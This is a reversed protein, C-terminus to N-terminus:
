SASSGTSTRPRAAPTPEVFRTQPCALVLAAHADLLAEFTPFRDTDGFWWDRHLALEEVRENHVDLPTFFAVPDAAHILVPLGLDGAHRIVEVVRPDDPSVLAGDADTVGLGLDKWVKLGRAGHAAAPGAPERLGLRVRQQVVPM